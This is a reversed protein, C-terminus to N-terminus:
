GIIIKQVIQDGYDVLKALILGGLVWSGFRCFFRKEFIACHVLLLMAVGMAFAWVYDSTTWSNPDFDAFDFKGIFINFVLWAAVLPLSIVWSAAISVVVAAIKENNSLDRSSSTNEHASNEICRGIFLLAVLGAALTAYTWMDFVWVVM